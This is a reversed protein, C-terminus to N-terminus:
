SGPRPRWTSRTAAPWRRHRTRGGLSRATGTRAGAGSRACRSGRWWRETGSGSTCSRRGSGRRRTCRPRRLAPAIALAALAAGAPLAVAPRVGILPLAVGLAAFVAFGLLFAVRGPRPRVLIAYWPDVSTLLIGAGVALVFLGNPATLTASAYYAPLVFLLLGHCLTQITYDAVGLVLQRGRGELVGRTEAVVGFVLGALVLYGVIWGAHPLGRRLVLITVLGLALSGGSVVWPGVRRARPLWPELRGRVRQAAETARRTPGALARIM